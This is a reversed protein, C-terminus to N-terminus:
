DTKDRLTRCASKIHNRIADEKMELGVREIYRKIKGTTDRDNLDLNM